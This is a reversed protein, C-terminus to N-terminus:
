QPWASSGTGEAIKAVRELTKSITLKISAATNSDKPFENKVVMELKTSSATAHAAIMEGYLGGISPHFACDAIGFTYSVGLVANTSYVAYSLGHYKTSFYYTQMAYILDDLPREVTISQNLDTDYPASSHRVEIRSLSALEVSDSYVCWDVAGLSGFLVAYLLIHKISM